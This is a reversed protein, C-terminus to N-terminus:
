MVGLRGCTKRLTQGKINMCECSDLAHPSAIIEAVVVGIPCRYFFVVFLGLTLFALYVEYEFNHWFFFFCVIRGRGNPHIELSPRIV